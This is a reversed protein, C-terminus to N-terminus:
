LLRSGLGAAGRGGFICFRGGGPGWLGCGVGGKGLPLGGALSAPQGRFVRVLGGFSLSLVEGVGWRLYQSFLIVLAIVTFGLHPCGAVGPFGASTLALSQFRKPTFLHPRRTSLM